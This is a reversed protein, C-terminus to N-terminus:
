YAHTRHSSPFRHTVTSSCGEETQKLTKRMTEVDNQLQTVNGDKEENVIKAEELSGEQGMVRAELEARPWWSRWPPVGVM